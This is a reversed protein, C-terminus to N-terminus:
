TVQYFMAIANIPLDTFDAVPEIAIVEDFDETATSPAAFKSKFINYAMGPVAASIGLRARLGNMHQALKVSHQFSFCRCPVGFKKAVDTYRKRDEAAPNTNDIVVSEGKALAEEAVKVCAQWTGLTDRNAHRYNHSQFFRKYFTSKGCGPPGCFVVVEPKGDTRRFVRRGYSKPLAALEDPSLGDWDFAAAPKGLFLEEPTLFRLGANHAFKRDSCSFDKKRGALTPVGRGAADGCYFSAKPDLMAGGSMLTLYKNMMTPLPKRFEDEKTSVLASIPVKAATAIDIIKGEIEAALGADFGKNGIRSQNSFIVVRFGDDRLQRLKAPVEPTLWQWDARSKAFTHTGKPRVLTDDLDFAALKISDGPSTADTALLHSLVLCSGDELKWDSLSPSWSASRLDLTKILHDAAAGAKRKAPLADSEGADATAGSATAAPSAARGRKATATAPTVEATDAAVGGGRKKVPSKPAAPAEPPSTVATGDEPTIKRFVRRVKRTGHAKKNSRNEQTMYGFHIVLEATDHASVPVVVKCMLADNLFEKEIADSTKRDYPLFAGPTNEWEWVHAFALLSGDGGIRRIQRERKTKVNRQVLKDFDIDYSVEKITLLFAHSGTAYAKEIACNEAAAFPVFKNKDSCWEWQAAM